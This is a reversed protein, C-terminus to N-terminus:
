KTKNIEVGAKEFKDVEVNIKDLKAQLNAIKENETALYSAIFADRNETAIRIEEELKIKDEVFQTVDVRETKTIEVETNSIKTYQEM